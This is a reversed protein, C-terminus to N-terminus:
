VKIQNITTMEIMEAEISQNCFMHICVLLTLIKLKAKFTAIRLKMRKFQLRYYCCFTNIIIINIQTTYLLNLEIGIM